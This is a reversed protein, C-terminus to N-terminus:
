TAIVYAVRRSAGSRKKVTSLNAEVAGKLADFQMDKVLFMEKLLMRNRDIDYRM